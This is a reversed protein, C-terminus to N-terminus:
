RFLLIRAKAWCYSAVLSVLLFVSLAAVVHFRRLHSYAGATHGLTVTLMTVFAWPQRLRSGLFVVLSIWALMFLVFALPHTHLFFAGIPNNEIGTAFQGSWYEPPQRQLTLAADAFTVALAPLALWFRTHESLPPSPSM